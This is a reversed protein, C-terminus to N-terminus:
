GLRELLRKVATPTWRGGRATPVNRAQPEAAIAALTLGQEALPRVIGALAAARDDARAKVARAAARQGAGPVLRHRANRDWPGDREIRARHGAKTRRIAMDSELEAVQAMMQLMFRGGAGGPVPLDCFAVLVNADALARLFHRDRSLGDMTAVVLTARRERCAALARALAPRDGRRGRETETFAAEPEGSVTRRVADRQAEVGPFGPKPSSRTRYYAVFSM